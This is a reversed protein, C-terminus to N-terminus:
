KNAPSVLPTVVNIPLNSNIKLATDCPKIGAKRICGRKHAALAKLNNASFSKCLDCKLGPKQIPASYKTSLFKDLIPFRIEDVQALVKKQSEKFVEIVANKQSLFLQYENNIADMVDKPVTCDDGGSHKFQRIKISLQDIIDVAAAINSTNYEAQHVYVIVNNNHIEIQYNKKTSIGSQQSILLGNCNYDDVSLTFSQVEDATVNTDIDRNEIIINPRGQRKLVILGGANNKTQIESSSYLKTLLNSLVKNTHQQCTQSDKFKHLAENLENMIKSQGDKINLNTREESASIYSYVPQLMMSSKIEFNNIFDKVSQQDSSKILEQTDQSITTAFTQLATDIQSNTNPLIEQLINTTKEMLFCNNKELLPAIQNHTNTEIIRQIDVVYENKANEFKCLIDQKLEFIQSQFSTEVGQVVLKEFLDIFLLNMTQFDLQPNKEYFEIIRKHTINLRPM